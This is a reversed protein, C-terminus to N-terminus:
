ESGDRSEKGLMLEEDDVRTLEVEKVRRNNHSTERRLSTLQRGRHVEHGKKGEGDSVRSLADDDERHHHSHRQTRAEHKKLLMDM